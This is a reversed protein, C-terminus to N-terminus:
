GWFGWFQEWASNLLPLKQGPHSFMWKWQRGGQINKFGAVVFAGIGLAAFTYPYASPGPIFSAALILLRLTGDITLLQWMKPYKTGSISTILVNGEEAIGARLGKNTNYADFLLGAIAWIFAIILAILM